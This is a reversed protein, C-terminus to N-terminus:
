NGNFFGSVIEIFPVLQQFLMSLIVMLLIGFIIWNKRKSQSMLEVSFIENGLIRFNLVFKEQEYEPEM